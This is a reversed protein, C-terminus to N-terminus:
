PCDGKTKKLTNYYKLFKNAILYEGHVKGWSFLLSLMRSDNDVEYCAQLIILELDNENLFVEPAKKIDFKNTSNSDVNFGIFRLKSYLLNNDM